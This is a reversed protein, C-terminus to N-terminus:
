RARSTRLLREGAVLVENGREARVRRAEGVDEGRGVGLLRAPGPSRLLVGPEHLAELHLLRRQVAPVRLLRDAWGVRDRGVAGGVREDLELPDHREGRGVRGRPERQERRVRRTSTVSRGFGSAGTTPVSRPM